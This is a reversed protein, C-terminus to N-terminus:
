GGTFISRNKHEYYKRVKALEGEVYVEELFVTAEIKINENLLNLYNISGSGDFVIINEVINETRRKLDFYFKRFPGSRITDEKLEYFLLYNEDNMINEWDIMREFYTMTIGYDRLGMNEDSSLGIACIKEEVSSKIIPSFINSNADGRRMRTMFDFLVFLFLSYKALGRYGCLTKHATELAFELHEENINRRNVENKLEEIISDRVDDEHSVFYKYFFPFLWKVELLHDKTFAEENLVGKGKFGLSALYIERFFKKYKYNEKEKIKAPTYSKPNLEDFIEIYEAIKDKDSQFIFEERYLHKNEHKYKDINKYASNLLNAINVKLSDVLVHTGRGSDYDDRSIVGKQKLEILLLDLFEYSDYHLRGEWMKKMTITDGFLPKSLESESYEESYYARQQELRTNYKLWADM